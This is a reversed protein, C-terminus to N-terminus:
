KCLASPLLLQKLSTRVFVQMEYNSALKSQLEIKLIDASSYLEPESLIIASIKDFWWIKEFVIMFFELESKHAVVYMHHMASYM